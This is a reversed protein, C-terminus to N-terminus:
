PTLETLVVSLILLVSLVGVELRVGVGSVVAVLDMDVREMDPVYPWNLTLESM